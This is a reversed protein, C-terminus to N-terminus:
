VTFSLQFDEPSQISSLTTSFLETHVFYQCISRCLRMHKCKSIQKGLFQDHASWVADVERKWWIPAKSMFVIKIEIQRKRRWWDGKIWIRYLKKSGDSRGRESKRTIEAQNGNRAMHVSSYPLAYFVTKFHMKHMKEHLIGIKCWKVRSRMTLNGNIM